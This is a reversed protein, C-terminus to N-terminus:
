VLSMSKAVYVAFSWQYDGASEVDLYSAVQFNPEINESGTHSYRRQRTKKICEKRQRVERSSVPTRENGTLNIIRENQRGGQRFQLGHPYPSFRHRGIQVNCQKAQLWSIGRLNGQM